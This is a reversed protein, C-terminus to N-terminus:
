TASERIPPVPFAGSSDSSVCCGGQQEVASREMFLEREAEWSWVTLMLSGRFLTRPSDEWSRRGASQALLLGRMLPLASDGLRLSWRWM